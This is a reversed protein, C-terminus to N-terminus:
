QSLAPPSPREEVAAGLRHSTMGQMIRAMVRVRASRPLLALSGELLKSLWGPRVTTTRGLANLTAQAVSAPAGGLGMRMGARAAFGSHTPGPASAVVDVGLPAMEGHLGEALSQVYAKTAAYNASLPTGQFALLSSMLVIGGRGQAAFRRGFRHSMALVARCNVDLMALEQDIDSDILRGSAGFGACAVLLGVDLHDTAALVADVAASRTLDADVVLTEIEFPASLDDAIEDLASRRRAVLVLNLGARALCLAMERGIGDSAGTVVAWPGYRARWREQRRTLHPATRMDTM